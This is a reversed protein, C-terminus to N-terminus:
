VNTQSLICFIFQFRFIRVVSLNLVYQGIVVTCDNFFRILVRNAMAMVVCGNAAVLHTIPHQPTFDVRKKSFIPTEELLKQNIFQTTGMGAM